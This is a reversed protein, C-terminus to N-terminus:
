ELLVAYRRGTSVGRYNKLYAMIILKEISYIANLDFIFNWLIFINSERQQM